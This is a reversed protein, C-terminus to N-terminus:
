HKKSFGKIRKSEFDPQPDTHRYIDALTMDHKVKLPLKLKNALNQAKQAELKKFEYLAILRGKRLLAHDIASLDSNFTCVIQIKLFNFLLGDAINLLASISFNEGSKRDAIINEADEIIIISNTNKSMIDLFRRSSLNFSFQPPIFIIKKKIHRALYRIYTTKGTGPEGHLLLVGKANEANLREMIRNHLPLFDDNYNDEISINFPKLKFRKVSLKREELIILHFHEKQKEESKKSLESKIRQTIDQFFNAYRGSSFFFSAQKEDIQVFLDKKLFIFYQKYEMINKFSNFYKGVIVNSSPLNYHKILMEPLWEFIKEDINYVKVAPNYGNLGAFIIHDEHKSVPIDLIEKESLLKKVNDVEFVPLNTKQM